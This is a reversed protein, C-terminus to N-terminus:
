APLKFGELKSFTVHPLEEPQIDEEDLGQIAEGLIFKVRLLEGRPAEFCIEASSVRKSPWRVFMTGVYETPKGDMHLAYHMGGTHGNSLVVSFLGNAIGYDKAIVPMGQERGSQSQIVGFNITTRTM